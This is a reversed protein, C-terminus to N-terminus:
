HKCLGYDFIMGLTVSSESIGPIGPLAQVPNLYVPARPLSLGHPKPGPTQGPMSNVLQSMVERLKRSFHCSHLVWM